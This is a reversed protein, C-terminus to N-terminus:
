AEARTLDGAVQKLQRAAHRVTRRLVPLHRRSSRQLANLAHACQHHHHAQLDPAANGIQLPGTATIMLSAM